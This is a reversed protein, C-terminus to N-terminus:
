NVFALKEMADKREILEDKQGFIFVLAIVFLVVQVLLCCGSLAKTFAQGCDSRKCCGCFFLLLVVTAGVMGAAYGAIELGM